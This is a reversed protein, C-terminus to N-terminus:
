RRRRFLWLALCATLLGAAGAGGGPAAVCAPREGPFPASPPDSTPEYIIVSDRPTRATPPPPSPETPDATVPPVVEPDAGFPAPDALEVVFDQAGFGTEAVRVLAQGRQVAPAFSEPPAEGLFLGYAVCDVPGAEDWLCVRGSGEPIAALSATLDARVGYFREAALTAVLLVGRGDLEAASLEAFLGRPNGEFDETRISYGPLSPGIALGRLDLAVYQARLDVSAGPSIELLRPGIPDPLEETADPPIGAQAVGVLGGILLTASLLHTLLRPRPVFRAKTQRMAVYM